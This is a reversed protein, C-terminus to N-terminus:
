SRADEIGTRAPPRPAPLRRARPPCRPPRGTGGGPRDVGIITVDLNDIFIKTGIVYNGGDVEVTDGDSTMDVVTKIDTGDCGVACVTFTAANAASPLSTLLALGFITRLM